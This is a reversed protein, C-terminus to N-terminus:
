LRHVSGDGLIKLRYRRGVNETEEIVVQTPDFPFGARVSPGIRYCPEDPKIAYPNSLKKGNRAMVNTLDSFTVNTGTGPELQGLAMALEILDSQRAREKRASRISWSSLLAAVLLFAAMLHKTRNMATKPPIHTQARLNDM